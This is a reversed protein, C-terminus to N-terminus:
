LIVAEHFKGRPIRGPIQEELNQFSVGNAESGSSERGTERYRCGGVQPKVAEEWALKKKKQKGGQDELTSEAALGGQHHGFFM